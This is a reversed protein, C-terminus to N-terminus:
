SSINYSDRLYGPVVVQHLVNVKDASTWKRRLIDKELLVSEVFAGTQDNRQLEALM